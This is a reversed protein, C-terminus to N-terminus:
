NQFFYAATTRRPSLAFYNAQRLASYEVIYEPYFQDTDFIVFISPSRRDNVCSDYLDSAPNSPDKPPPRHYTSQGKVYSGVLVKAVFMFQSFNDDESAYSDSYSSNLAFYSGKGYRTANKGHMRWDFNQKCIAEVANPSTGHFLRKENISAKGEASMNEKKRQYKEWMFPNQVREIRLIEVIKQISKTFLKKVDEFEDSLPSLQVREYPIESSMSSWHAPLQKAPLMTKSRKMTQIDDSSVFKERRRVNRTTGYKVNTQKMDYEPYFKMRYNQGAVRFRFGDQKNLFAGELAQQLDRGAQDVGYKRWIHHEDKWYWIWQTTTIKGVTDDKAANDVANGTYITRGGFHLTTDYDAVKSEFTDTGMKRDVTAYWYWDDTDDKAANDVANGTYITRGGFHLTTDYDAVKSEFTDTGMKRDVTAYSGRIAHEVTDDKAAHELANGTNITRGGFHVTTDYDAVKSEFTDTGMKRDVTAYSGRIAHEVTDDKAAHELANGTNITRGGFHVTTDYDAVKSEFTDTGMKRDVTAYSGRIAHEDTDDKAAHDVANGTYITRAGFHVTTDYDAVKSQFTDTGMKRDVTAYSVKMAHEDTDDDAAHHVGNYADNKRGRFRLTTDNSQSTTKKRNAPPLTALLILYCCGLGSLILYKFIDGVKVKADFLCAFASVRARPILFRLHLLFSAIQLLVGVIYAIIVVVVIFCPALFVLRWLFTKTEEKSRRHFEMSFAIIDLWIFCGSLTLLKM